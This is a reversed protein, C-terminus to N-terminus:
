PSGNDGIDRLGSTSFSNGANTALTVRLVELGNFQTPPPPRANPALAAYVSDRRAQPRTAKRNALKQQRETNLSLSQTTRLAVSQPRYDV